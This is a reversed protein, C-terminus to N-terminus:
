CRLVAHGQGPIWARGVHHAIVDITTAFGASWIRFDGGHIRVGAKDVVRNLGALDVEVDGRGDISGPPFTRVRILGLSRDGSWLPQLWTQLGELLHPAIIRAGNVNPALTWAPAPQNEANETPRIGNFEDRVLAASAVLDVAQTLRISGRSREM